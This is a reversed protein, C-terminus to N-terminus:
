ILWSSESRWPQDWTLHLVETQGDLPTRVCFYIYKKKAHMYADSCLGLKLQVIQDCFIRSAFFHIFLVFLLATHSISRTIHFGYLYVCMVSVPRPLSVCFAPCLALSPQICGSTCRLWCTVNTWLEERKNEMKWAPFLASLIGARTKSETYLRSKRVTSAQARTVM